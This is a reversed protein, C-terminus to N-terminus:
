PNFKPKAYVRTPKHSDQFQTLIKKLTEAVCPKRIVGVAGVMRIEEAPTSTASMVVIPVTPHVKRVQSIVQLADLFPIDVDVLVIEPKAPRSGYLGAADSGCIGVRRGDSFLRLAPGLAEVALLWPVPM